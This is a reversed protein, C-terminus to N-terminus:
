RYATARGGFSVEFAASEGAPPASVTLNEAGLEGEDGYFTFRLHVSEGPEAQKGTV